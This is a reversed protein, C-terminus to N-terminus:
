IIKREMAIRILDATNEAGAKSYINNIVMKVTNISLNRNVAIEARTLGHSLDSLIETERPSLVLSDKIRNAQRYMAIIHVQRKAYAAAKRNINQLWEVPIQSKQEKMVSTTLTRMDKGLEIFPMIINNPSATEYAKQLIVFAKNKDKQRYHVCAELALMEIRGLLFSERHRMEEMYSLLPPYNRTMFHYRAKIQNAFNEIFGSHVYPSFSQKLWDPIKEIIGLIFYYWGLSIDYNLFCNVYQNQKAQSYIDKLAQEAKEYNGQAISLRLTYFLAMHIIGYEMCEKAQSLAQITYHEAEQLNGQFFKLEGRALETEGTKFCYPHSSLLLSKQTLASLYKEPAGKKSSGTRNVWAGPCYIPFTGAKIPISPDTQDLLVRCSKEILLYFDYRNDITCMLSRLYSWDYYLRSLTRRSIANTDKQKLFRAEYYEALKIAKGWLGQCLYARLHIVALSEVEDFVGAPAKDLIDATFKAINEPIQIPFSFLISLISAYDGTKEYYSLADIKFGNKNYWDGAITYTKRKENESLLGQKAALFELFFPHIIYANTYTDQCIYANQKELENILEEDKGALSKILDKSLHGILSLRLLFCQVRGSILDWVETEMLRFINTKMAIRIYGEYGPAKQYSRAILNIAFAWGGTDQRIKRLTDTQASINLHRFYGALENDTFRLDNGTINFIQNRSNFGAINIQPTSRSILFVSIFAKFNNIGCEIFHIVLPDKLFHFDDLVIIQREAGALHNLLTFYRNLKDKTDPFGLKRITKAFSPSVQMISNICNKWFRLCFNDRESLQIWITGTKHEKTFDRVAGTKGYGTGACISVLPHRAAEALLQNVRQRVYHFRTNQDQRKQHLVGLTASNEVM